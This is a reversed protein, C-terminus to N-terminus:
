AQCDSKEPLVCAQRSTSFWLGQGCPYVAQFDGDLCLYFRGCDSPHAVYTFEVAPCPFDGEPPSPGSTTTRKTTTTAPPSQTTPAATTPKPEEPAVTTPGQTPPPQRTTTTTTTAPPSTVGQGNCKVAEPYNCVDLDADWLLAGPCRGRTLVGLYCVYFSACDSEHPIFYHELGECVPARPAQSVPSGFTLSVGVVFFVTILIKSM